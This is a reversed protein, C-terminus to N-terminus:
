DPFVDKNVFIGADSHLYFTILNFWLDKESPNRQKLSTQRLNVPSLRDKSNFSLQENSEKERLYNPM